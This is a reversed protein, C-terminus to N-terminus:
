RGGDLDLSTVYTSFPHSETKGNNERFQPLGNRMVVQTPIIKDDYRTFRGAMYVRLRDFRGAPVYFITEFRQDGGPQLADDKKTHPDGLSTVLVNQYVAVTGSTQYFPDQALGNGALTMPLPSTVPEIREGVVVTALGLFHARAAGDNRVDTELRIGILKDHESVKQLSATFNIDPQAFTPVIKNEYIFVYFAWFGAALIAVIEVIDRILAVLHSNHRRNHASFM